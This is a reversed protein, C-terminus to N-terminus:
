RPDICASPWDNFKFIRAWHCSPPGPQGEHLGDLFRPLDEMQNVLAGTAVSRLWLPEPIKDRAAAFGSRMRITGVHLDGHFILRTECDPDHRRTLPLNLDM